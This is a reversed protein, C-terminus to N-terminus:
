VAPRGCEEFVKNYFFRYEEPIFVQQQKLDKLKEESISGTKRGLRSISLNQREVENGRKKLIDVKKFPTFEDYCEKYLYSGFEDVRIWKVGDRFMVKENLVNRKRNTLNLDNQLHDFDRFHDSMNTVLNNKSAKAIIGRYEDPLYVTEHKRLEKEIRGFDRDSDLYSHGVEPYKHDIVKFIGKLVLFQYLCILQFNKNQGACSDTWFIIHDNNKVANNFEILTLISSCIENSGRNAVDETWTFFTGQEGEKTVIHIGLNYFWMQRLYFAKSTTLKPLPMTQQLDVTCYVLRNSSDKVKARDIKQHEFAAHYSDKHHDNSEGSDCTSCTDSRPTKFSLNFETNFIKAYSSMERKYKQAQGDEECKEIYMKYMKALTLLPSLYKKHPNKHRSYHSEEAPFSSIHAKIYAKVEDDIKHPRNDHRGRKDPSPACHGQKIKEQVVAVKKKGIQYLSQFASKCVQVQEGSVTIFYKYSADRHKNANLQHNKVPMKVISKFLLTNKANIDLKYFHSFIQHRHEENFNNCKYRCIGKCLNDTQVKKEPVSVGKQTVYSKGLERLYAAKKRKWESENRTRKKTSNEKVPFVKKKKKPVNPTNIEEQTTDIPVMGNEDSDSQTQINATNNFTQDNDNNPGSDQLLIDMSELLDTKTEITVENDAVIDDIEQNGIVIDNETSDHIIDPEPPSAMNDSSLDNDDPVYEEDGDSGPFDDDCYTDHEEGFDSVFVL